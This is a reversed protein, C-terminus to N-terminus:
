SNTGYEVDGGGVINVGAGDQKAEITTEEKTVVEEFQSEYVLWGANTGVLLTILLAILFIYRKERREHRAESAEFAAYPISKNEHTGCGNCHKEGM